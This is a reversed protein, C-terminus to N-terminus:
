KRTTLLLKTDISIETDLGLKIRFLFSLCPIVTEKVIKFLQSNAIASETSFCLKKYGNILFVLLHNTLFECIQYIHNLPM